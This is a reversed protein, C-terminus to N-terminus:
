MPTNSRLTMAPNYAVQDRSAQVMSQTTRLLLVHPVFRGNQMAVEVKANSSAEYLPRVRFEQDENPLLCILVNTIGMNDRNVVLSEDPISSGFVDANKTVTITKQAPPDGDYIYRGSLHGWNDEDAFVCIPVVTAVFVTACHTYKM